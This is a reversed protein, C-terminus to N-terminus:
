NQGDSNELLEAREREARVKNLRCHIRRMFQKRARGNQEEVLLNQCQDENATRVFDNLAIWTKLAPNKIEEKMAYGKFSPQYFTCM